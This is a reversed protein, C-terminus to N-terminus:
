RGSRPLAFDAEARGPKASLATSQPSVQVALLGAVMFFCAEVIFVYAYAMPTSHFLIKLLDVLATAVVGGLAFALAQAAGWLGMRVGERSSHGEGVMGMMSGIAGVAFAGNSLGLMFVTASLPWGPGILGAVSLTILAMTSAVCGGITWAKISGFRQDSKTCVVAVILMGLLVGTNQV